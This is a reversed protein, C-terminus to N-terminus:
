AEKGMSPRPAMLDIQGPASPWVANGAVEEMFHTMGSVMAEVTFRAEADARGSQAIRAARQPDDLLGRLAQELAKVNGPEVMVGTIGDHLIEEVGGARTAVVPRSALMGEVIVRGFPEPAISTHLVISSFQMLQPIDPRFGLFHVRNALGLAQVQQRLRAAYAQEGFLADGVL